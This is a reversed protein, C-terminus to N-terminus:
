KDIQLKGEVVVVEEKKVINKAEMKLMRMLEENIVIDLIKGKM